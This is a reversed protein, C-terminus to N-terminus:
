GYGRSEAALRFPALRNCDGQYPVVTQLPPMQEEKGALAATKYFCVHYEDDSVRM